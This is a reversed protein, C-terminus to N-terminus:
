FRKMNFIEFLIKKHNDIEIFTENIILKNIYYDFKINKYTIQQM